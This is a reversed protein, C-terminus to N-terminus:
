WYGRYFTLVLMRGRFDTLRVPQGNQDTLALDPAATLGLSTETPPPLANSLFFVYGVLFGAFAIALGLGLPAVIRGRWEDRRAFARWVAVGSVGVGLLALPLNVWPFDRLAPFRAFFTFYSVTGAFAVVPGIWSLHNWRKKMRDRRPDECV